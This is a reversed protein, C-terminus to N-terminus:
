SQGGDGRPATPVAYAPRTRLADKLDALLEHVRVILQQQQEFAHTQEAVVESWRDNLDLLQTAVRQADEVRKEQTVRLERQLRLVYWGVAILVPGLVGANILASIVSDPM